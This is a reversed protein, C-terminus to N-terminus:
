YVAPASTRSVKPADIVIGQGLLKKIFADWRRRFPTLRHNGNEDESDVEGRSEYLLVGALCATHYSVAYPVPSAIPVVYAGARLADNTMEHALAIMTTIRNAIFTSNNANDLDAWKGINAVGFILELDSRTCYYEGSDVFLVSGVPPGGLLDTHSKILLLTAQSAISEPDLVQYRHVTMFYGDKNMSIELGGEASIRAEDITLLYHGNHSHVVQSPHALPATAGNLTLNFDTIVATTYAAGSPALVPGILRTADALLDLTQM